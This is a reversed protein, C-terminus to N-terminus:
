SKANSTGTTVSSTRTTSAIMALIEQKLAEKDAERAKLLEAM